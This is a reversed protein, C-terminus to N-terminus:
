WCPLIAPWPATHSAFGGDTRQAAM